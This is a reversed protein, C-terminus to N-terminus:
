GGIEREGGRTRRRVEEAVQKLQDRMWDCLALTQKREEEQKRAEKEWTRAKWRWQLLETPNGQGVQEYKEEWRRVEELLEDREAEAVTLKSTVTAHEHLLQKMEEAGVKEQEGHQLREVLRELHSRLFRESQQKHKNLTNITREQEATQRELSLLRAKEEERGAEEEERMGELAAVKAELERVRRLTQELLSSSESAQEELLHNWALLADERAQQHGEREEMAGSLSSAIRRAMLLEHKLLKGEGLLRLQQERVQQRLADAALLKQQLRDNIAKESLLLQVLEENRGTLRRVMEVLEAERVEYLNESSTGRATRERRGGEDHEWTKDGQGEESMQWARLVEETLKM